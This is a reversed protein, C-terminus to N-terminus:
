TTKRGDIRWLTVIGAKGVIILCCDFEGQLQSSSLFGHMKRKEARKREKEGALIGVRQGEGSDPCHLIKGPTM